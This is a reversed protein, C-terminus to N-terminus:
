LLNNVIQGFHVNPSKDIERHFWTTTCNYDYHVNKSSVFFFISWFVCLLCFVFIHGFFSFINGVTYSFAFAPSEGCKVAEM